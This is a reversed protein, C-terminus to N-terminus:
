VGLTDCNAARGDCESRLCDRLYNRRTDTSLDQEHHLYHSYQDLALLGEASIPPQAVRKM